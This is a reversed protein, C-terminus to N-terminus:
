AAPSQRLRGNRDRSPELGANLILDAERVGGLRRAIAGALSAVDRHRLFEALLAREPAEEVGRNRRGPRVPRKPGVSATVLNARDSRNPRM